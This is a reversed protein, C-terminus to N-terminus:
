ELNVSSLLKLGLKVISQCHAFGRFHAEIHPSSSSQLQDSVCAAITIATSLQAFDADDEDWKSVLVGHDRFGSSGVGIFSKFHKKSIKIAIDDICKRGFLAGAICHHFFHKLDVIINDGICIRGIASQFQQIKLRCNNVIVVMDNCNLDNFMKTLVAHCSGQVSLTYDLLCKQPDREINYKNCFREELTPYNFSCDQIVLFKKCDMKMRLTKKQANYIFDSGSLDYSFGIKLLSMASVFCCIILLDCSDGSVNTDDIWIWKLGEVIEAKETEQKQKTMQKLQNQVQAIKEESLLSYKRIIDKDAVPQQLTLQEHHDDLHQQLMQQDHELQLVVNSHKHREEALLQADGFLDVCKKENGFNKWFVDIFWYHM